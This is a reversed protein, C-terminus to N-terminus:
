KKKKITLDKIAFNGNTVIEIITIISHKCMQKAKYGESALIIENNGAKLRFGFQKDKTKYIEFKAKRM